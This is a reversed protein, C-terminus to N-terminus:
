KYSVDFLEICIDLCNRKIYIFKNKNGNSVNFYMKYSQGM